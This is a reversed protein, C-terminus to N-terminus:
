VSHLMIVDASVTYTYTVRQNDEVSQVEAITLSFVGFELTTAFFYLKAKDSKKASARPIMEDSPVKNTGRM